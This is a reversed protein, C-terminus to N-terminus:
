WINKLSLYKRDDNVIRIAIIEDFSTNTLYSNVEVLKRLAEQPNKGQGFGIVQMNEIDPEYSESNPQYTSGETTMFIFTHMNYWGISEETLFNLIDM